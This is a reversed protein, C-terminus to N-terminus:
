GMGAQSAFVSACQIPSACQVVFSGLLSSNFKQDDEGGRVPKRGPVILVQNPGANVYRSLMIGMSVLMVLVMAATIIIIHGSTM